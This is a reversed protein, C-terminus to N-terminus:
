ITNIMIMENGAYSLISFFRSSPSLLQCYGNPPKKDSTTCIASLLFTATRRNEIRERNVDLCEERVIFHTASYCVYPGLQHTASPHHSQHPLTSKVLSLRQFLLSCMYWYYVGRSHSIYKNGVQFAHPTCQCQLKTSFSIIGMLHIPRGM